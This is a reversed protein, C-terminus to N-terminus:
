RSDRLTQASLGSVLVIAGSTHPYIHVQKGIENPTYRIRVVVMLGIVDHDSDENKDCVYTCM